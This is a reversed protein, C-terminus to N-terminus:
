KCKETIDKVLASGESTLKFRRYTDRSMLNFVAKNAKDFIWQNIGNPFIFPDTFNRRLESTIEAPLNVTYTSDAAIFENFIKKADEILETTTIEKDSSYNKSFNSINKWFLLNETSHEKTMHSELAAYGEPNKLVKRFSNQEETICGKKKRKEPWPQGSKKLM